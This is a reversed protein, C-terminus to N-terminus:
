KRSIVVRDLLRVDLASIDPKFFGNRDAIEGLITLARTLNREPLKVLVGKNLKINWRRKSIWMAFVLQKKFQPFKELISLLHAAEQEAGEGIIIPLNKFDGIGDYELIKGENDVLYLKHKSQLIAIPVRETLRIYLLNPLRRQISSSRVWAVNELKQKVKWLDIAFINSHYRIGSAKLLLVDSVRDNGDFVVKKVCFHNNSVRSIQERCFYMSIAVSVIFSTAWFLSSKFITRIQVPLDIAGKVM